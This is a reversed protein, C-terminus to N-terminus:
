LITVTPSTDGPQAHVVRCLCLRTSCAQANVAPVLAVGVLAFSWPAAGARLFCLTERVRGCYNGERGAEKTVCGRAAVLGDWSLGSQRRGGSAVCDCVRAGGM